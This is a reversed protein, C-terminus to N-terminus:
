IKKFIYINYMNNIYKYVSTKRSCKIFAQSLVDFFPSSQFVYVLHFPFVSYSVSFTFSPLFYFIIM